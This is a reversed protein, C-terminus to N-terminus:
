PEAGEPMLVDYYDSNDITMGSKNIAFDALQAGEKFIHALPGDYPRLRMITDRHPQWWVDITDGVKLTGGKVHRMM